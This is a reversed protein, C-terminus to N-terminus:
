KTSEICRQTNLSKGIQKEIWKQRVQERMSKAFTQKDTQEVVDM